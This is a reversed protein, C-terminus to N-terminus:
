PSLSTTRREWAERELGLRWEDVPVGRKVVAAPNTQLLVFGNREFARRSRLNGVFVEAELRNVGLTEFAYSALEAIVATGLKKGQYPEGIWLGMMARSGDEDLRVDCSGIARGSGVEVITFFHKLGAAVQAGREHLGRRYETLSLPGDWALTDTVSTGKLLPFLDQADAEVPPRLEVLRNRGAPPKEADDNLM